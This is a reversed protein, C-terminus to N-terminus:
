SAKKTAEEIVKDAVHSPVEEYGHLERTHMARGQTMSRLATGYRYLEARPVLARIRTKRGDPEMGLVKGRRQNLDGMVDGVYDEPTVVEVEMIPELLVPDAQGAAKQFALSGAVQFAVDSSDVSHFSGHFVEAEFDVVPYGALIGRQAAEKIGKDVSPIFKGPIVGGVISNVFEYGEGRRRPKIRIQCDGFQGRGGTQKKHRGHAEAPRRITERYPIRPPETTVKVGYKRELREMQIQLHLEGMGRIITQKLEPNFEYTFTPDEEHLKALATGMREEDKRSAAQIAVSADPHPFPVAEVALPRGPSCLSDNTHTDKLKSVVGIDGAHLRPVDLREKGMPVALNALKEGSRRTANLVEQGSTVVGSVTRFLSLEGVHPESATKFVLAAFAGGDDGELEVPDDSAPNRAPRAPAEAPSPMLEVLKSLLARTGWAREAAGSFLPYMEGQLMAAKMAAIAQDRDITGGELYAELLADDTTAISEFLETRWEEFQAQLEEPVEAEEYEGRPSGSKYIHAKGSFLNIIGRFDEGQGIPIEVPIVKDTLHTKVDRYVQHFDAHEKDMMSVFLVRPLGRRECYEWVKETGVEVGSTSDLTIVAGDAAWTASLAEGTFDLYGPTDLLNIKTDRWAAHAVSTQISIGHDIEEDTYMTVATGDQVNGKRNTSGTVFCLADVLTTKGSGGHGLVAVNRIRDTTYEKAPM